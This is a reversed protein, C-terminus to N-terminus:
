TTWSSSRSCGASRGGHAGTAPPGTPAPSASSREGDRVRGDGRSPVLEVRVGFRPAQDAPRRRRLGRSADGDGRRGRSRRRRAVAPPRRLAAERPRRSPSRLRWPASRITAGRGSRGTSRNTMPASRVALAGMAPGTRRTQGKSPLACRPLSAATCDRRDADVTMRRGPQSPPRRAAVGRPRGGRVQEAGHVLPRALQQVPTPPGAAAPEQPAAQHDGVEDPQREGEPEHDQRVRALIGAPVGRQAGLRGREQERQGEPRDHGLQVAEVVAVLPVRVVGAHVVDDADEVDDRDAAPEQERAAQEGPHARDLQVLEDREPERGHEHQRQGPRHDAALHRCLAEKWCFAIMRPAPSTPCSTARLSMLWGSYPTLTTPNRSGCGLARRASRGSCRVTKPSVSRSGSIMSRSSMSRTM